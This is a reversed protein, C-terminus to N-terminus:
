KTSVVRGYETARATRDFYDYAKTTISQIAEEGDKENKLFTSMVSIVFPRDKLFIVGSEARVGELWGHKSAVVVDDPIAKRMHSDGKHTALMKWFDASYQPNLVKGEYVLRLLTLMERVTSVNERGESAAKLDMMKRRLKTNRLGLSALTQNANDMGLRDILVNTAANDSVAMMATAVDRLTIKSVGPTLGGLIDSDQVIDEARITYLDTLKLKGEQAQKYLELLVVIKISSAQPMVEDGNTMFWAGSKLDYVGVGMVGDISDVEKEVNQQLKQWLLNQKATAPKEPCCRLPEQANVVLGATALLTALALCNKIVGFVLRM